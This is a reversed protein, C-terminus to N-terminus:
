IRLRGVLFCVDFGLFKRFIPALFNFVFNLCILQAKGWLGDQSELSTCPLQLEAIETLSAAGRQVKNPDGRRFFFDSLDSLAAFGHGTIMRGALRARPFSCNSWRRGDTFSSLRRIEDGSISVPFTRFPPFAAM